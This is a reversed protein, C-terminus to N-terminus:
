AGSYAHDPPRAVPCWVGPVYLTETWLKPFRWGEPLEDLRRAEVCRCPTPQEQTVVHVRVLIAEAVDAPTPAWWYAGADTPLKATWTM